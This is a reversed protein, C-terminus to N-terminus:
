LFHYHKYFSYSCVLTIKLLLKNVEQDANSRKLYSQLSEYLTLSISTEMQLVM